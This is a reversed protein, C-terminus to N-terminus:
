AQPIIPFLFVWGTDEHFPCGLLSWTIEATGQVSREHQISAASTTVCGERFDWPTMSLGSWLVATSNDRDM